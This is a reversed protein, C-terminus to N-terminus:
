QGFNQRHCALLINLYTSLYYDDFSLYFTDRVDVDRLDQIRCDSVLGQQTQAQAIATL